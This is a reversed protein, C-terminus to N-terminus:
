QDQKDFSLWSLMLGLIGSTLISAMCIIKYKAQIDFISVVSVASWPIISAIPIMDASTQIGASQIVIFGMMVLISPYFMKKQKVAVWLVPISAVFGLIGSNTFYRIFAKIGNLDFMDTYILCCGAIYIAETAFLVVVYWAFWVFLKSLIFVKRPIPAALVNIITQDQYERQILYTIILGSMTPHIISNLMRGGMLWDMYDSPPRTLFLEKLIIFVPVFLVIMTCITFIRSKKIKILDAEFANLM